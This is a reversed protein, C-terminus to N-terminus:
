GAGWRRQWLLLMAITWLPKRLDAAGSLHREFLARAPAPQLLGSRKLSEVSFLDEYLPRLPGRIWSAVPIGFGKKKRNLIDDPVLGQLAQKLVIKTKTLSLKLQWPMRSALEVVHTDLFPSRLELSAAMSARDAKVLIDDVLYRQQYYRLAQTVSGEAVGAAGDRAVDALWEEYVRGEDATASLSPVLLDRLEVPTFSGIWTAHRLSPRVDIGRWLQKVRFDYSMNTSAAPLRQVARGLSTRVLRPLRSLWGAPRHALFPDYGAFLEDGGDGSLAVKVTRRTFRSLLLTPLFSPDALPEDLQDVAAPLLDTCADASLTELAHDTHLFAAMRAAHASEDFSAETFGISFTQLPQKHRVALAAIASSDIGGSLFVGVPVDAVLRLRVAEELTSRLAAIADSASLNADPVPWSWYRRFQPANRGFVAVHAPPLKEIARFISRRGPVCEAALYQAVSVPDIDRAIAGHALLAKIESGFLLGQATRALYLPKKGLRDRALLLKQSSPDWIALAFMGQVHEAFGEGWELYARLVVETDSHTTFSHGKGELEKRLTAFEYAEGNFIITRGEVTMPQVGGELDLISLRRHGLAVPGEVFFGDADPGRHAIATTMRRVSELDPPRAFDLIGAIGCM